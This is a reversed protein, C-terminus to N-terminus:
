RFLICVSCRECMSKREDHSVNGALWEAAILGLRDDGGEGGEQREERGGRRGRITTMLKRDEREEM